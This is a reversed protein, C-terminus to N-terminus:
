GSPKPSRMATGCIVSIGAAYSEYINIRTNYVTEEILTDHQNIYNQARIKLYLVWCSYHILSYQIQASDYKAFEIKVSEDYWISTTTAHDSTITFIKNTTALDKFIKVLLQPNLILKFTQIVKQIQKALVTEKITIWNPNIETSAITSLM